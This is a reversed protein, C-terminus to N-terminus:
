CWAVANRRVRCKLTCCCLAHNLFSQWTFLCLAKLGIRSFSHKKTDDWTPPLYVIPYIPLERDHYTGIGCAIIGDRPIIIIEKVISSGKSIDFARFWHLVLTPLVKDWVTCVGLAIDIISAKM